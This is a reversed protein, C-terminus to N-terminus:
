SYFHSGATNTACKSFDPKTFHHNLGWVGPVGLRYLSRYYFDLLLFGNPITQLFYNLRKDEISRPTVNCM